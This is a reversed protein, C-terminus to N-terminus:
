AMQFLPILILMEILEQIIVVPELEGGEKHKHEIIVAIMLHEEIDLVTQPWHIHPSVLRHLLNSSVIGFLHSFGRSQSLYFVKPVDKTIIICLRKHKKTFVIKVLKTTVEKSALM